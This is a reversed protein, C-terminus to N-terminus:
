GDGSASRVAGFVDYDASGTLSGGDDTVGRVSGLGDTLWYPVGDTQVVEAAHEKGKLPRGAARGFRCVACLVYSEHLVTLVGFIACFRM